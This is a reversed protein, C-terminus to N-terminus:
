ENDSQVSRDTCGLHEAEPTLMIGFKRNVSSIIRKELTVVDSATAEGTANVIVLPQAEWVAAGGERAGKMGAQEILWAAPIKVLGPAVEYHPVALDPYQSAIQEYVSQAVVPNKFFSGASGIVSVDPLKSNRIKLVTNRILMPTIEEGSDRLQKLPGYNLRPRPTRSLRFTVDTIIYRDRNCHRKFMSDRYGFQMESGNIIVTSMTRTDFVRASVILDCAEVGYAGVNQVPAAGATGPIGSLNELGWLGKEATMRCLEDTEVAAGATLLVNDSGAEATLRITHNNSLLITGTYDGTFILNSGSGIAKFQRPLSTDTFIARLDNEDCFGALAAAHAHLRFTNYGRLNVDRSIM